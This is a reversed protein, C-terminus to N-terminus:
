VSPEPIAWGRERERQHIQDLAVASPLAAIKVNILKGDRALGGNKEVWEQYQPPVEDGPYIAHVPCAPICLGCDICSEPNIVLMAPKEIMFFSDSPCVAACDTYRCNVCRETVVHPM